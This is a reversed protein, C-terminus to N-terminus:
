LFDQPTISVVSFALSPYKFIMKLCETLYLPINRFNSVHLKENYKKKSLGKNSFKPLFYSLSMNKLTTFHLQQISCARKELEQGVTQMM